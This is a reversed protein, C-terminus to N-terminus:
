LLSMIPYNKVVNKLSSGFGFQSLPQIRIRMSFFVSPDPDTFFSHLDVTRM